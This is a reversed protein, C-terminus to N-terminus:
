HVMRLRRHLNEICVTRRGEAREGDLSWAMKPSAMIKLKSGSLFTIMSSDLSQNLLAKICQHLEALSKPPRVLLVEFKGDCMNVLKPNLSLVGAVSTTNCVAGFLYDGEVVRGDLELRVHEKHIKPLEQAAKLIYAFHGLLNKATQSCGYSAATFAGFSAVYNFFRKDFRGLDYCRIKGTVIKRAAELIDTSLHLSNAYDNTSGAPIYGVPVDLGSALIGSVTENLTGDGGCCVILDMDAGCERVARDADGRKATVHVHTHYGAKSFIGVIKSLKKAAKKTGAIPNLILLLQKM